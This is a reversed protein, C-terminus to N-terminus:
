QVVWRTIRNWKSQRFLLFNKKKQMISPKFISIDRSVNRNRNNLARCAGVHTGQACLICNLVNFM